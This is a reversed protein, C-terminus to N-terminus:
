MKVFLVPTWLNPTYALEKFPVFVPPQKEAYVISKM